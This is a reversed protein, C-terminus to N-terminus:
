QLERLLPLARDKISMTRNSCEPWAIGVAPDDWRLGRARGPEFPVTMEYLIETEPLTTQFGHAVGRPIYLQRYNDASLEVGFWRGFAPSDRRLDVIVDFAAGSTVRVLKDEENPAAQYHMGRLTGVRPNRSVSQQVFRANLGHRAFQEACVTRAFFGRDDEIPEIDIIFAGPLPTPTFKV